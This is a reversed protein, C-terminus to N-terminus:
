CRICHLARVGSSKELDVCFPSNLFSFEKCQWQTFLAMGSCVTSEASTFICKNRDKSYQNLFLVPEPLFPHIHSYTLSFCASLTVKLVLFFYICDETTTNGREPPSCFKRSWMQLSISSKAILNEHRKKKKWLPDCPTESSLTVAGPPQGEEWQRVANVCFGYDMLIRGGGPWRGLATLWLGTRQIAYLACETGAKPKRLWMLENEWENEQLQKLLLLPFYAHASLCSWHWFPIPSIKLLCVNAYYNELVAVPLMM